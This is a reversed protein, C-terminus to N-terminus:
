ELGLGRHVYKKKADAYSRSIPIRIGGNLLVERHTMSAIADMNVIFSNHCRVFRSDCLFSPALEAFTARIEVAEGDLLMIFIVHNNVEIYKVDSFKIFRKVQKIDLMVGATDTKERAAKIDALVRKVREPTPPKLIYNFAKVEYTQPGFENSTSLFVIEGEYGNKRLHRALEIGSMEPMIIDLICVDVAAGARIYEIVDAGAMFVAAEYGLSDLLKKLRKVEELLNDCVLIKMDM